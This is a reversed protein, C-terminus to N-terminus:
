PKLREFNPHICRQKLSGNVFHERNDRNAYERFKSIINQNNLSASIFEPCQKQSFIWQCDVLEGMQCPNQWQSLQLRALEAGITAHIPNAGSSTVKETGGLSNRELWPTTRPNQPSQPEGM